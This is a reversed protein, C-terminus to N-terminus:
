APILIKVDTATAMAPDVAWDGGAPGAAVPPCRFTQLETSAQVSAPRLTVNAHDHADRPRTTPWSLLRPTCSTHPARAALAGARFPAAGGGQHVAGAVVFSGRALIVKVKKPKKGKKAAQTVVAQLTVTGACESQKPPCSVQYDLCRTPKVSLASSGAIQAEPDHVVKRTPSRQKERRPPPPPPPKKWKRNKRAAPTHVDPGETGRPRRRRCRRASGADRRMGRRLNSTFAHEATATFTGEKGVKSKKVSAAAGDSFRWTLKLHPVTENPDKAGAVHLRRAHGTSGVKLSTRRETRSQLHDRAARRHDKARGAQDAHRSRRDDRARHNRILGSTQLHVVAVHCARTDQAGPIVEKAQAGEGNRVITWTPRSRTPAKWKRASPRPKASRCKRSMAATASRSRRCRSKSTAVPKRARLPASSPWTRNWKM